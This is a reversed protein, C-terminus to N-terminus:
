SYYSDYSFFFFSFFFTRHSRWFCHHLDLGFSLRLIFTRLDDLQSLFISCPSADPSLLYFSVLLESRSICRVRGRRTHRDIAVIVTSAILRLHCRAILCVYRYENGSSNSCSCCYCRCLLPLKYSHLTVSTRNIATKVASRIIWRRNLAAEQFVQFPTRCVMGRSFGM